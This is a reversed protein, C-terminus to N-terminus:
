RPRVSSPAIVRGGVRPRRSRTPRSPIARRASVSYMDPSLLRIQDGRAVTALAPSRQDTWAHARWWEPETMADLAEEVKRRRLYQSVWQRIRYAERYKISQSIPVGVRLALQHLRGWTATLPSPPIDSISARLNPSNVEFTRSVRGPEADTRVVTGCTIALRKSAAGPEVKTQVNSLLALTATTRRLRSAARLFDELVSQRPM